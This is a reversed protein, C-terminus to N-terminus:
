ISMKYPCADEVTRFYKATVIKGDNWKSNEALLDGLNLLHLYKNLFRRTQDIDAVYFYNKGSDAWSTKSDCNVLLKGGKILYKRAASCNKQRQYTTKTFGENMNLIQQIVKETLRLM